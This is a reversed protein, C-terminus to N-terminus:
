QLFENTDEMKVSRFADLVKLSLAACFKKWITNADVNPHLRIGKAGQADSFEEFFDPYDKCIDKQSERSVIYYAYVNEERNLTEAVKAGYDDLEYYYLERKGSTSLLEMFANGVVDELEIYIFM